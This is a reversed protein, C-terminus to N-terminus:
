FLFLSVSIGTPSFVEMSEILSSRKYIRNGFRSVQLQRNKTRLKEKMQDVEIQLSSLAQKHSHQDEVNMMVDKEDGSSRLIRIQLCYIYCM